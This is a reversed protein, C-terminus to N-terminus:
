TSASTPRSVTFVIGSCGGQGGEAVVAADPGVGHELVQLGRLGRDRDEGLVADVDVLHRRPQEVLPEGGEVGVEGLQEGRDLGLERGRLRRPSPVRQAARARELLADVLPEVVASRSSRTPRIHRRSWVTQLGVGVSILSRSPQSSRGSVSPRVPRRAARREGVLHAASPNVWTTSAPM